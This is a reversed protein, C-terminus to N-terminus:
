VKVEEFPPLKKRYNGHLCKHPVYSKSFKDRGCLSCRYKKESAKKVTNEEIEKKEFAETRITIILRDRMMNVESYKHLRLAIASILEYAKDHIEKKIREEIQKIYNECQGEAYDQLDEKFNAIISQLLNKNSDNDIKIM